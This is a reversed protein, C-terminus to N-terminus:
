ILRGKLYCICCGKIKFYIMLMGSIGVNFYLTTMKIFNGLLCLHLGMVNELKAM